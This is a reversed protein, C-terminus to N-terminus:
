EKVTINVEISVIHPNFVRWIIEIVYKKIENQFNKKQIIFPLIKKLKKKEMKIKSIKGNKM